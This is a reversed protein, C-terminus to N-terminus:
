CCLWIVWVVVLVGFVFVYGVYRSLDDGVVVIM